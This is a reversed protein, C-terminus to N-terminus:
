GGSHGSPGRTQPTAPSLAQELRRALGLGGAKEVGTALADISM